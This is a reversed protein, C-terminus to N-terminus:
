CKLIPVRVSLNSSCSTKIVKRASTAELLSVGGDVHFTIIRIFARCIIYNKRYILPICAIIKKFHHIEKESSLNQRLLFHLGLHFAVNQPMKDQTKGTKLPVQLCSDM